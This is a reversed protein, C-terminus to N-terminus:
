RRFIYTTVAGKSYGGQSLLESTSTVLEFGIASVADMVAPLNNVHGPLRPLGPHRSYSFSSLWNLDLWLGLGSRVFYTSQTEWPKQPGLFDPRRRGSLDRGAFEVHKKELQVNFVNKTDAMLEDIVLEDAVTIEFDNENEGSCSWTQCADAVNPSRGVAHHKLILHESRKKTVSWRVAASSPEDAAAFAGRSLGMGILIGAAVLSLYLPRSM